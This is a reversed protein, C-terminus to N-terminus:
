LAGIRLIGVFAQLQDSVAKRDILHQICEKLIRCGILLDLRIIKDLSESMGPTKLTEDHDIVVIFQSGHQCRRKLAPPDKQMRGLPLDDGTKEVTRRPDRAPGSGAFGHHRHMPGLPQGALDIRPVLNQEGCKGLVQGSINLFVQPFYAGGILQLPDFHGIQIAPHNLEELLHM